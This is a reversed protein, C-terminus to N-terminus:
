CFILLMDSYKRVHGCVAGEYLRPEDVGDKARRLAEDELEDTGEQARRGWQAAFEPRSRAV